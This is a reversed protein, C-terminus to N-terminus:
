GVTVNNRVPIDGTLIPNAGLTKRQDRNIVHVGQLVIM